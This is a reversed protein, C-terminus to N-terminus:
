ARATIRGPRKPPGKSAGAPPLATEQAAQRAAIRASRRPKPTAPSPAGRGASKKPPLRDDTKAARRDRRGTTEAAAHEDGDAREAERSGGALEADAGSPAGKESPLGWSRLEYQQAPEDGPTGDRSHGLREGQSGPEDADWRRKKTSGDGPAETDEGGEASDSHRPRKSGCAVGSGTRAAASEKFEAEVLPLQDLVWKARVEFYTMGRVAERYKDMVRRFEYILANRKQIVRLSTKAAALRSKAAAMIQAGAEPTSRRLGSSATDEHRGKLIGAAASKTSALDKEAKFVERPRDRMCQNSGLYEKTEFPRLLGTGSLKEWAQDFGSQNAAAVRTQRYHEAYLCGLYEIWTTLPDQQTRDDHLRFSRTFGYDALLRRMGDTYTPSARLYDWFSEPVLREESLEAYNNIDEQHQHTPPIGDHDLRRTTDVTCHAKYLRNEDQSRRFIQWDVLQEHFVSWGLSSFPGSVPYYGGVFGIWPRLMERHASPDKAVEDILDFPFLPRGGDNVLTEYVERIEM